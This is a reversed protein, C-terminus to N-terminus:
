NRLTHKLNRVFIRNSAVRQLHEHCFAGGTGVIHISNKVFNRNSAVCQLHEHLCFAGYTGRHLDLKEKFDASFTCKAVQTDLSFPFHSFPIKM